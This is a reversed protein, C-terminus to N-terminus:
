RTGHPDETNPGGLSGLARATHRPDKAHPRPDTKQAQGARPPGPDLVWGPGLRTRARTKPKKPNVPGLVPRRKPKLPMMLPAALQKKAKTPKSEIAVM